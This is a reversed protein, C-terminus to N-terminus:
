RSAESGGFIRRMFRALASWLASFILSIANIPKPEPSSTNHDQQHGFAPSGAGGLSQAAVPSPAPLRVAEAGAVARAGAREAEALQQLQQQFSRTFEEFMKNSIEQIMRGGFQALLGVLSVESVTVVETGGDPLAKLEGSMKMTASGRGRTDQGKGTLQIKHNQHDMNEIHVEGRYDTLTPGVKVTIAGKYTQEDVVETLKAGPVCTVVRTPDSLLKWVTEVPEKTQFTKEIKVLV